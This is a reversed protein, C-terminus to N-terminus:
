PWDTYLVGINSQEGEKVTILVPYSEETNDFTNLWNYVTWVMLYYNGPPVNNVRVVGQMDSKGVYDGSELKPGFYIVPPIPTGHDDLAKTLYFATGPIGQHTSTSYLLFSLAGAGKVPESVTIQSAIAVAEEPTKPGTLSVPSPTPL